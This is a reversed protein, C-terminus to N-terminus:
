RTATIAIARSRRVSDPEARRETANPSEFQYKVASRCAARDGVGLVEQGEDHEQGRGDGDARDDAHRSAPRILRVPGAGLGLRQRARRRREDGLGVRHGGHEVVEPEREARRRGQELRARALGPVHRRGRADLRRQRARIRRRCSGRRDHDVEVRRVPEDHEAGGEVGVVATEDAREGGLQDGPQPGAGRLVVGLRGFAQRGGVLQPDGQQLGHRVVQARREGDILADIELSKDSSTSQGSASRASSSWAM